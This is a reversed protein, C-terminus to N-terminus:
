TAILGHTRLANLIAALAIRAEVDVVAGGSAANIAPQRAGAVQVGAVRYVSANVDGTVWQSVTRRAIAGSAIDWVAMGEFPAAFRWGGTTWCALAGDQGAWAGVAGAGVIWCQGFLPSSPIASPAVVIVVPQMLMDVLALAENHTTEKQAQGTALLPLKLRTSIDTM